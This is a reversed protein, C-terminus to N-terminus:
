SKKGDREGIGRYMKENSSKSQRELASNIMFQIDDLSLSPNNKVEPTVDSKCIIIPVVDMKLLGQRTVEYCSLFVEDVEKHYAELTKRDKESLHDLTPKIINSNNLDSGNTSPDGKKMTSTTSEGTTDGFHTAV